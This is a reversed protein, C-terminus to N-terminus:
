VFFSKFTAILRALLVHLAVKCFLICGQKRSMIICVRTLKLESFVASIGWTVMKTVTNGMDDSMDTPITNFKTMNVTMTEESLRQTLPLSLTVSGNAHYTTLFQFVDATMNAVQVGDIDVTYRETPYGPCDPEYQLFSCIVCTITTRLNLIVMIIYCICDSISYHM